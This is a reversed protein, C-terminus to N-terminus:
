QVAISHATVIVVIFIVCVCMTIKSSPFIQTRQFSMCVLSMCLVLKSSKYRATKVGEKNNYILAIWDQFTNTWIFSLVLLCIPIAVIAKLKYLSGGVNPFENFTYCWFGIFVAMSAVQILLAATKVIRNELLMDFCYYIVTPTRVTPTKVAAKVPGDDVGGHEENSLNNYGRRCQREVCEPKRCTCSCTNVYWIDVAIQYFFVGGLLLLSVVPPLEAMVVFVFVSIAGVEFLSAIIGQLFLFICTINLKQWLHM